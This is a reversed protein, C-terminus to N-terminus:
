PTALENESAECLLQISKGCDIIGHGLYITPNNYDKAGEFMWRRLPWGMAKELALLGTVFPTAISTGSVRRWGGGMKAALVWDGPAAVGNALVAPGYDSFSARDGDTTVATVCVAVPNRAPYIIPTRHGNGAAAIVGMGQWRALNEMADSIARSETYSGWSCNVMDMEMDLAKQFCRLLWSTYGRGDQDLGKFSYLQALPAVGVIGIGNLRGAIAGAVSTGHGEDDQWGTDSDTIGNYGGRVAGVLDPHEPDIGTDIVGVLVNQGKTRHWAEEANVLKVEWGIEAEARVESVDGAFIPTPIAHLMDAEVYRVPLNDEIWDVEKDSLLALIGNILPVDELIRLGENEMLEAFSQRGGYFVIIFRSKPSGGGGFWSCGVFAVLFCVAVAFLMKKM